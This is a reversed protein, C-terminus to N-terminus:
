VPLLGSFFQRDHAGKHDALITRNEPFPPIHISLSKLLHYNPERQCANQRKWHGRRKGCLDGRLSMMATIVPPRSM